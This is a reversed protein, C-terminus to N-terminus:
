WGGKQSLMFVIFYYLAITASVVIISGVTWDVILDVLEQRRKLQNRILKERDSKIDRRLQQFEQYGSMGLHGLEGWTFMHYIEKEMDALKQKAAMKDFAEKTESTDFKIPKWISPQTDKGLWHNLDDVAEAWKTLQKFVDEVERGTQVVSKVGNFAANLASFAAVLELV